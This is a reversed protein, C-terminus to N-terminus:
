SAPCINTITPGCPSDVLAQDTFFSEALATARWRVVRNQGLEDPERQPHLTKSYERWLHRLTGTTMARNAVRDLDTVGTSAQSGIEELARIGQELSRGLAIARSLFRALFQVVFCLLVMGILCAPWNSKLTQIM